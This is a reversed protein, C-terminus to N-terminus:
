EDNRMWWPKIKSDVQEDAMDDLEQKSKHRTWAWLLLAFVFLPGTIFLLWWRNCPGGMARCMPLLPRFYAVAVSALVMAGSLLVALQNIRHLQEGSEFADEKEQTTRRGDQEGSM